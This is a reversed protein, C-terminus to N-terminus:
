MWVHSDARTPYHRPHERSRRDKKAQRKYVRVLLGRNGGGVPIDDDDNDTLEDSM